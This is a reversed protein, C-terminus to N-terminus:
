VEDSEDELLVLLEVDDVLLELQDDWVHDMAMLIHPFLMRSPLLPMAAASAQQQTVPQGAVSLSHVSQPSLVTVTEPHVPSQLLPL